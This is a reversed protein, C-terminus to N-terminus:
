DPCRAALGALWPPARSEREVLQELLLFLGPEAVAAEAAQGSAVQIREGGQLDRGGAVAYAVLEADEVLGDFVTPLDLHEVVPEVEAKGPFNRMRFDSKADTETTVGLRIAIVLAAVPHAPHGLLDQLAEGVIGGNEAMVGVGGVHQAQPLRLGVGREVQLSEIHPVIPPGDLFLRQRLVDGLDKVRVVLRLRALEEAQLLLVEEDRARQLVHHAYIGLVLGGHIVEVLLVGDLEIVGMRRQSHGLEHADQDVVFPHGPFGGPLDGGLGQAVGVVGKHGLRQLGPGQAEHLPEQGAM